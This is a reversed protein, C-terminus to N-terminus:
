FTHQLVHFSPDNSIKALDPSRFRGQQLFSFLQFQHQLRLRKKENTSDATRARLGVLRNKALFQDVDTKNELAINVL